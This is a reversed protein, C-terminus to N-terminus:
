QCIIRIGLAELLNLVRAASLRMWSVACERIFSTSRLALPLPKATAFATIQFNSLNTRPGIGSIWRGRRASNLHIAPHLLTNSTCNRVAALHPRRMAEPECNRLAAADRELAEFFLHDRILAVKVAEVYGARKDRPSLSELLQFTTSSPLRRLSRAWSIRKALRTSAM